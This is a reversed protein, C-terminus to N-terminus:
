LKTVEFRYGMGRVTQIYEMAKGLKNRLRNMHTDVTRETGEYNFGWVKYLIQDRSLVIGENEALYYLLQFETHSLEIDQNEITIKKQKLLFHIIGKELTEYDGYVRSFLANVRAVLITPSFPKRVYDDVGLKFGTLEDQDTSKATLMLIPTDTLPRIEEVVQFGDYFPMMVDLIILKCDKHAYFLDLAEQGDKATIVDYGEAELFDSVLIRIRTEDDAILIKGKMM